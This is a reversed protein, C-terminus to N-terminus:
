SRRPAGLLAEGRQQEVCLRFVCNLACNMQGRYLYKRLDASLCRRFLNLRRHRRRRPMTGGGRAGPYCAHQKRSVSIQRSPERRRYALVNFNCPFLFFVRGRYPCYPVVRWVHKANLLKSIVGPQFVHFFFSFPFLRACNM